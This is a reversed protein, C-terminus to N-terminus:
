LQDDNGKTQYIKSFKCWNEIFQFWVTEYDTPPPEKVELIKNGSTKYLSSFKIYSARFDSVTKTQQQM